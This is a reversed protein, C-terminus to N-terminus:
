DEQLDAELLRACVVQQFQRAPAGSILLQPLFGAVADLLMAGLLLQRIIGSLRELKLRCLRRHCRRSRIGNCTNGYRFGGLLDRLLRIGRRAASPAGRAGVVTLDELYLDPLQGVFASV